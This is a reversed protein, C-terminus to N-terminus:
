APGREAPTLARINVAHLRGSAISEALPAYVMQQRRVPRLDAFCDGVALVEFHRGDDGRVHLECDPLATALLARVEDATM